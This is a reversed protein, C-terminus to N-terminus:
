NDALDNRVLLTGFNSGDFLRMFSRPLQEFGERIDLRATIEGADQWRKLNAFASPIKEPYDFGLFGQLKLRWYIVRMMNKPGPAMANGDDYSSIQGCLPIRGFPAMTEIVADLTDGGVNDFFVNVGDPCLEELRSRIDESKYDITADLRCTDRLWRCKEEGGAIGIVRCQKIRAIQAAISGTSGAAGSVVVTEGAQPQGVELLGFYATLSNVGLIGVFDELSVGEPKLQPTTKHADIVTYDQWCTLGSVISGEPFDKNASRIVRAAASGLVPEGVTMPPMFQSNAKMMTRMAPMCHFMLSQVLIQGPALEPAAFPQERYAFDAPVVAGEPRRALLWQRNILQM